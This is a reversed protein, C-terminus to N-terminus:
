DQDGIAAAVSTPTQNHRGSELSYESMNVNNQNLKPSPERTSNSHHSNNKDLNVDTLNDFNRFESLIKVSDDDKEAISNHRELDEM